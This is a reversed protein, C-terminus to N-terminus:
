RASSAASRPPRSGAALARGAQGKRAMPYGDFISAVGMSSGPVGFLVSTVTNGTGSVVAVGILLAIAPNTDMTIAFPLVMVLAFSGGLGPIAVIVQCVIVGVLLAALVQPGLMGLATGIAELM